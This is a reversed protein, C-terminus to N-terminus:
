PANPVQIENNFVIREFNRMFKLRILALGNRQLTAPIAQFPVDDNLSSYSDLNEAMLQKDNIVSPAAPTGDGDYSNYNQYRYIDSGEVCYSTPSTIFYLRNTPSKAIFQTSTDLTLVVAATADNLQDRALLPLIPTNNITGFSAIVGNANNYIDDSNLAYISIKSSSIILESAFPVLSLTNTEPEPAVPIDLYIASKEVPVFELCQGSPGITRISNPLAGRVERNLREVVFRATSILEDRDAADTYSKTGFRLFTSVSTVLVGLIVIVTVLEILTFGQQGKYLKIM